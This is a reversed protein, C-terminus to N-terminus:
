LFRWRHNSLPGEDGRRAEAALCNSARPRAERWLAQM